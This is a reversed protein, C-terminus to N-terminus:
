PSVYQYTEIVRGRKDFFVALTVGSVANLPRKSGYLYEHVCGDPKGGISGCPRDSDPKGLLGIVDREAMCGIGQDINTRDTRRALLHLRVDGHHPGVCDSSINPTAEVYRDILPLVM